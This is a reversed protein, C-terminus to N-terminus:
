KRFTVPREGRKEAGPSGIVPQFGTGSNGRCKRPFTKYPRTKFGGGVPRVGPDARSPFQLVFVSRHGYTYGIFFYSEERYRDSAPKPM